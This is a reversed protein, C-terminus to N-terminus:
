LKISPDLKNLAKRINKSEIRVAEREQETSDIGLNTRMFADKKLLEDIKKKKDM